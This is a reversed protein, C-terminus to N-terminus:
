SAVRRRLVRGQLPQSSEPNFDPRLPWSSRSSWIWPFYMLALHSKFEAYGSIGEYDNLFDGCGYLALKRNYIEIPRPHHSSHGHVLDVNGDLLRHAFAVHAATIDYGWNTGWHISGIAIDGRRKVRRVRELIADATRESLDPLVHIGSRAETAAWTSPIGSGTM